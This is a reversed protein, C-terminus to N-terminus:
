CIQIFIKSFKLKLALQYYVHLTENLWTGRNKWVEVTKIALYEEYIYIACAIILIGKALTNFIYFLYIFYTATLLAATM